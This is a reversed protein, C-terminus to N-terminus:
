YKVKVTIISMSVACHMFSKQVDKDSNTFDDLIWLTPETANVAQRLDGFPLFDAKGDQATPMGKIDTPLSTAGTTIITKFGNFAAFHKAVSTKATAPPGVLLMPTRTNWSVTLLTMTQEFNAKVIDDHKQKQPTM